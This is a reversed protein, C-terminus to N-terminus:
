RLRSREEKREALYAKAAKPDTALDNIRQESMEWITDDLEIEEDRKRGGPSASLRRWSAPTRMLCISLHVSRRVWAHARLHEPVIIM